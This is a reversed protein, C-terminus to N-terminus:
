HSIFVEMQILNKQACQCINTRTKLMFSVENQNIECVEYKKNNQIELLHM